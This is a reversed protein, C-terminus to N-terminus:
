RKRKTHLDRLQGSLDLTAITHSCDGHFTVRWQNGEKKLNYGHWSRETGKEQSGTYVSLTSGDERSLPEETIGIIPDEARDSILRVIAERDASSLHTWPTVYAYKLNWRYLQETCGSFTALALFGVLVRWMM